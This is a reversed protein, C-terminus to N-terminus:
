TADANRNLPKVKGGEMVVTDEIRVGGWDPFYVGPEVTFVMGDCLTDESSPGLRPAEHTELGIGHGLGHGFAEGYGGHEIVTRALKDALRGTMGARILEIATRQAGFVIDNARILRDDAKGLWLTRTIDSCYGDVRAGFDVIVPEGAAIVRDSPRAHPLAANPGSAVIIEFPLNQSGMDRMTRELHWAAQKETMGEQLESAFQTFARHALNAAKSISEIEDPDKISRLSEVLGTQPILEVPAAAASIADVFSRYSAFSLHVAEFGIKKSAIQAAAEILWKGGYGKLKLLEFRPSERKTQEFYRFDTAILASRASILLYGDSGTFGSLYSRNESCGILIADLGQQELLQRLKEVREPKSHSPNM